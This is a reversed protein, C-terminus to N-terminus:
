EWPSIGLERDVIAALKRAEAKAVDNRVDRKCRRQLLRLERVLGVLDTGLGPLPPLPRFGRYDFIEGNISV